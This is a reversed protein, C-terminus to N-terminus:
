PCPTASWTSATSEPRKGVGFVRDFETGTFYSCGKRRGARLKTGAKETASYIGMGLMESVYLEEPRLGQCASGEEQRCAAGTARRGRYDWYAGRAPDHAVRGECRTSGAQPAKDACPVLPTKDEFCNCYCFGAPCCYQSQMQQGKRCGLLGGKIGCDEKFYPDSCDSIEGLDSQWERVAQRIWPRFAVTSTGYGKSVNKCVNRSTLQRMRGGVTEWKIWSNVGVISRKGSVYKLIPGGSDGTCFLTNANGREMELLRPSEVDTRVDVLQTVYVQHPRRVGSTGNENFGYGVVIAGERLSGKPWWAEALEYYEEPVAGYDTNELLILALDNEGITRDRGPYGPHTRLRKAPAFRAGEADRALTFRVQSPTLTEVCHAATLVIRPHVLTGTCHAKEGLRLLGVPSIKMESFLPPAPDFVAFALVPLVLAIFSLRM